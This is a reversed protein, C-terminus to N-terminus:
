TMIQWTKRRRKGSYTSIIQEYETESGWFYWTYQDPDKKNQTANVISNEAKIDMEVPALPKSHGMEALDTWMSTAKQCNEFFGGLEAETASKMVDIM